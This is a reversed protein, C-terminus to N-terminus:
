IVQMTGDNPGPTGKKFSTKFDDEFKKLEIAHEHAIKARLKAQQHLFDKQKEKFYAEKKALIKQDLLKQALREREEAEKKLRKMTRRAGHIKKPAVIQKAEPTKYSHKKPLKKHRRKMIIKNNNFHESDDPLVMLKALYTVTNDANFQIAIDNDKFINILNKKLEKQLKKDASQVLIETEEKIIQAHMNSNPNNQIENKYHQLEYKIFELSLQVDFPIVVEKQKKPHLDKAFILMLFLVYYLFCKKKIPNM